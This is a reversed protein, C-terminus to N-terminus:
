VRLKMEKARDPSWRDGSRRLSGVRGRAGSVSGPSTSVQQELKDFLLDILDGEWPMVDGTGREKVWCRGLRKVDNDGADDMELDLDLDITSRGGGVGGIDSHGDGDGGRYSQDDETGPILSFTRSRISRNSNSPSTPPISHTTYDNLSQSQARSSSSSARPQGRGRGQGPAPPPGSGSHYSNEHDSDPDDFFSSM